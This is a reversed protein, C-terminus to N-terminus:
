QTRAQWKTFGSLLSDNRNSNMLWSRKIKKKKKEANVLVRNCFDHECEGM